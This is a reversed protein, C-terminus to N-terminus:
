LLALREQRAGGSSDGHLELAERGRADDPQRGSLGYRFVAKMLNKNKAPGYGARETFRGREASLPGVPGGSRPVHRKGKHFTYFLLPPFDNHVSCM